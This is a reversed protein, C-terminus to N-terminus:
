DAPALLARVNEVPVCQKWVMQLNQPGRDDDTDYYVSNTSSVLGIVRGRADLVPGGSSGRAYDATVTMWRQGHHLYRRSVIGKTLAFYRGDPHSLVWADQGTTSAEALPLAPIPADSGHQDVPDVRVIAVDTRADAALVEALAFTRGDPLMAFMARRGDRDAAVVHHNTVLVGGPAIFFGSAADTHWNDCHPCKYASGVLAVARQAQEYLTAGDLDADGAEVLGEVAAQGRSLGRRLQEPSVVERGSGEALFADTADRLMRSLAADDVWEGSTLGEDVAAPEAHRMAAACPLADFRAVTTEESMVARNCAGASLLSLWVVAGVGFRFSRTCFGFSGRRRRPSQLSPLM